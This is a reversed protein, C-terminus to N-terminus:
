RGLETTIKNKLLRIPLITPSQQQLLYQQGNHLLEWPLHLLAMDGTFALVVLQDTPLQLLEKEIFRDAGDLWRYLQQGTSVLNSTMAAYYRQAAQQQM